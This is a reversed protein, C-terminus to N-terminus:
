RSGIDIKGLSHKIVSVDIMISKMVDILENYEKEFGHTPAKQQDLRKAQQAVKERLQRNEAHLKSLEDALAKTDPLETARVWGKLEYEAALQPITELVSLKVDKHDSFFSSMKELVKKRFAKLKDPFDKEIVASGQEKVRAELAEESIVIAFHPKDSAVAFDYELETYSLGLTPEIM